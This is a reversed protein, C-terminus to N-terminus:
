GPQHGAVRRLDCLIIALDMRVVPQKLHIRVHVCRDRFVVERREFIIEVIRVAVNVLVQAAITNDVCIIYIEIHQGRIGIAANDVRVAVRVGGHVLHLFALLAHLIVVDSDIHIRHEGAAGNARLIKVLDDRPRVIRQDARDHCIAVVNDGSAPRFRVILDHEHEVVLVANRARHEILKAHERILLILLDLISEFSAFFRRFWGPAVVVEHALRELKHRRAIIIHVIAVAGEGIHVVIRGILLLKVVAANREGHAPDDMRLVAALIRGDLGVEGVGARQRIIEDIEGILAGNDFRLFGARLRVHEGAHFECRGIISRFCGVGCRIHLIEADAFFGREVGHEHDCSRLM